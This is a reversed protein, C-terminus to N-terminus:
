RGYFKSGLGSFTVFWSINQSLHHTLELLLKYQLCCMNPPSKGNHPCSFWCLWWEWWGERHFQIQFRDDKRLSTDPMWHWMLSITPTTETLTKWPYSPPMRPWHLRQVHHCGPGNWDGARNAPPQMREWIFCWNRVCKGQQQQRFDNAVHDSRGASTPTGPQLTRVNVHSHWCRLCRQPCSPWLWQRSQQRASLTTEEDVIFNGPPHATAGTTQGSGTPRPPRHM